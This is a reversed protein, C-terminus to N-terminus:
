RGDADDTVGSEVTDWLGPAFAKVRRKCQDWPNLDYPPKFWVLLAGDQVDYGNAPSLREVDGFGNTVEVYYRPYLKEKAKQNKVWWPEVNDESM